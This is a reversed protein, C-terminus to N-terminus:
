LHGGPLPPHPHSGDFKDAPPAFPRPDLPGHGSPSGQALQRRRVVPGLARTPQWRAGPGPLFLPLLALQDALVFSKPSAFAPIYKNIGMCFKGAGMPGTYPIENVVLRVGRGDAGPIVFIELIQPQGRWAGDLSVTSVLRM